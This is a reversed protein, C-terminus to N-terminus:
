SITHLPEENFRLSNGKSLLVILWWRLSLLIQWEVVLEAWLPFLDSIHSLLVPSMSQLVCVHPSDCTTVYACVCGRRGQERQWETPIPSHVRCRVGRKLQSKGQLKIFLNLDCSSSKSKSSSGSCYPRVWGNNPSQVPANPVQVVM